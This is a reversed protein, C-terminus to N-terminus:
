EGIAELLVSGRVAYAGIPWVRMHRDLLETAFISVKSIPKIRSGDGGRRQSRSVPIVRRDETPIHNLGHGLELSFVTVLQLDVAAAQCM